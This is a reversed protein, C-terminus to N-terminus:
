DLNHSPILTLDDDSMESVITERKNFQEGFFGYERGRQIRLGEAAADCMKQLLYKALESRPEEIFIRNWEVHFNDLCGLNQDKLEHYFRPLLQKMHKQSSLECM